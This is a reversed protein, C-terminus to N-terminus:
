LELDDPTEVGINVGKLEIKKVEPANLGALKAFLEICRIKDANRTGTDFLISSYVQMVSDESIGHAEMAQRLIETVFELSKKPTIRENNM